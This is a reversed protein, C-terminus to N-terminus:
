LMRGVEAFRKTGNGPSQLSASPLVNRTDLVTHLPTAMTAANALEEEGGDIVEVGGAGIHALSSM